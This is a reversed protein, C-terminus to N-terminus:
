TLVKKGSGNLVVAFRAASCVLGCQLGISVTKRPGLAWMVALSHLLM